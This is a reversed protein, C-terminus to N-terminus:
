LHRYLWVGALGAGYLLGAILGAVRGIATLPKNDINLFPVIKVWLFRVRHLIRISVSALVYLWVWISTFLSAWVFLRFTFDNPIAKFFATAAMSIDSMNFHYPGYGNALNDLYDEVFLSVTCSVVLAVSAVFLTSVTDLLLLFLIRPANPRISMARVITRSVLVSLYDPVCNVVLSFAIIFLANELYNWNPFYSGIWDVGFHVTYLLSVCLLALISAVCSRLFFKWSRARPGFVRDILTPFVTAWIDIQEDGPVNKLWQSLKRRGESNLVKEFWNFGKAVGTVIGVFSAGRLVPAYQALLASVDSM